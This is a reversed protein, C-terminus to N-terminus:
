DASSFDPFVLEIEREASADSDSGHVANHLTDTGFYGRISQPEQKKAVRSDTPGLASRFGEVANEKRLILAVAPGSTMFDILRNFFRTGRLHDYFHEILERDPTFTKEEVIEFGIARIYNRVFDANEAAVADPKIWAFTLSTTM